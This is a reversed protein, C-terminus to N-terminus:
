TPVSGSKLLSFLISVSLSLVQDSQIPAVTESAGNWRSTTNPTERPDQGKNVHKLDRVRDTGGGSIRRRWSSEQLPQCSDVYGEECGHFPGLWRKAKWSKRRLDRVVVFDGPKIDHLPTEAVKGQAAKVQM